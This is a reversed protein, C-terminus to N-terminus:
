AADKTEQPNPQRTVDILPRGAPHWPWDPDPVRHWAVDPRLQECTAKGESGREIAACRESPIGRKRWGTVSPPAVGAMRAVAVTGGIQDIDYTM